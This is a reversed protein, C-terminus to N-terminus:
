KREARGQEMRVRARKLKEIISQNREERFYEHVSQAIKPGIAPVSELEELGAAALADLSGFHGALTEAIQSGVHRIGLAFLLRGLPREKSAQINALIKDALLEGM